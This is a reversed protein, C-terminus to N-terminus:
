VIVIASPSVDWPDKGWKGGNEHNWQDPRRNWDPNSQRFIM